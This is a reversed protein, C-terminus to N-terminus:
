NNSGRLQKNNELKQIFSLNCKMPEEMDLINELNRIKLAEDVIEVFM